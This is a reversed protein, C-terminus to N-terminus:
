DFLQRLEQAAACPDAAACLASVLALGDAGARLIDRANHAHIGGIAVLPLATAARVQRLGDLGWPPQTDTKTPTAHIPSVGLYDVPLSASRAVDDMTEVSWGIFVEPPLLQRAQAVPMDSQGLHVGQAGCALAIDIRDNIVLPIQYPALLTKLILAQALFDRTSLHKERLQVCNVGGQVAAAVVDTLTRGRASAQDTVLYLRLAQLSMERALAVGNVM